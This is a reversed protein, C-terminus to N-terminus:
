KSVRSERDFDARGLNYAIRGALVESDVNGFSAVEELECTLLEWGTGDWHEGDSTNGILVYTHCPVLDLVGYTDPENRTQKVKHLGIELRDPFGHPDDTLVDVPNIGFSQLYTRVEHLSAHVEPTHNEFEFETNEWEEDNSEALEEAEEESDAWIMKNEKKIVEYLPM